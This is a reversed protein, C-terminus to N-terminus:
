VDWLSRLGIGVLNVLTRCKDNMPWPDHITFEVGSHTTPLGFVYLSALCMTAWFALRGSPDLAYTIDESVLLWIKTCFQSLNRVLVWARRRNKGFEHSLWWVNTQGAQRSALWALMYTPKRLISQNGPMHQSIVNM